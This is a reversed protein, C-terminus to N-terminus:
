PRARTASRLWKIKARNKTNIKKKKRGFNTPLKDLRVELDVYVFNPLNVRRSLVSTTHENRSFKEFSKRVPPLYWVNWANRAYWALIVKTKASVIPHKIRIACLCM